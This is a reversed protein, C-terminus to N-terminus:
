LLLGSILYFIQLKVERGVKNNHLNMLLQSHTTYSRGVSWNRDVSDIFRKAFSLGFQVNDSCQNWQFGKAVPYGSNSRECTCSDLKNSSCAKTISYSVGASFISSVFSAERGELLLSFYTGNVSYSVYENTHLHECLCM